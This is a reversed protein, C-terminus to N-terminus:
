YIEEVAVTDGAVEEDFSSGYLAGSNSRSEYYSRSKKEFAEAFRPMGAVLTPLIPKDTGVLNIQLRTATGNLEFTGKISYDLSKDDVLSSLLPTQVVVAMPKGNFDNAFSNSKDPKPEMGLTVTFYGDVNGYTMDFGGDNVRYLGNAAKTSRPFLSNVMQTLENVKDQTMHAMLLAQWNAPNPSEFFAGKDKPGVGIAITGDLAKLYPVIQDAQSGVRPGYILEMAKVVEDVWGSQQNIGIAAAAIFNSPMYRLFDTNVPKLMDTEYEEGDPKIITSQAVIANDKINISATVWYDDLGTKLSAQDVIINAINDEKLASALGSFRLINNKKRALEFDEINKLLRRTPIFWVQKDDESFVICEAYDSESTSYVEKGEETSRSFDNKKLYAKLDDADKVIATGYAENKNVSGFIVINELDVAQAVRGIEKMADSPMQDKIFSYEDPLVLRGDEVTVGADKALKIMDVTAVFETDSPVTELLKDKDSSCSCFFGAIFAALLGYTLSFPNLFHKM